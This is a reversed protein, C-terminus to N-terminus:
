VRAEEHLRGVNDHFLHGKLWVEDEGVRGESLWMPRGATGGVCRAYEWKLAKASAAGKAQFVKGGSLGKTQGPVEKLNQEFTGKESLSVWVM